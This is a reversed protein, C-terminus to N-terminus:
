ELRDLEEVQVRDDLVRELQGRGHGHGLDPKVEFLMPLLQHDLVVM